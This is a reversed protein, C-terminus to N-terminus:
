RWGGGCYPSAAVGGQILVCSDAEIDQEHVRLEFFVELLAMSARTSAKDSLEQLSADM